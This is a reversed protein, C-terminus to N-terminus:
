EPTNDKRRALYGSVAGIALCLLAVWPLTLGHDGGHPLRAEGFFFYIVSAAAVGAILGSAGVSARSQGFYRVIFFGGVLLPIGVFLISFGITAINM